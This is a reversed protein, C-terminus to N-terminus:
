KGHLKLMKIYNVEVFYNDLCIVQHQAGLLPKMIGDELKKATPIYELIIDGNLVAYRVFFEELIFTSAGGTIV